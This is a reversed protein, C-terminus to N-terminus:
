AANTASTGGAEAIASEITVRLINGDVPKAVYRINPLRMVQSIAQAELREGTVIIIPARTHARIHNVLANGEIDPLRWDLVLADFEVLDTSDNLLDRGSIFASVGFDRGIEHRLVELAASDDDVVAVLPQPRMFRLGGVPVDGPALEEGPALVRLVTRGDRLSAAFPTRGHAPLAAVKIAVGLIKLVIEETALPHDNLQALVWDISVGLSHLKVLAKLSPMNDGRGIRYAQMRGLGLDQSLQNTRAPAAPYGVRDLERGLAYAFAPLLDDTKTDIDAGAGAQDDSQKQMGVSLESGRNHVSATNISACIANRSAGNHTYRKIIYM